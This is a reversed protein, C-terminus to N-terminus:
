AHSVDFLEASLHGRDLLDVEPEVLDRVVGVEFVFVRYDLKESQM